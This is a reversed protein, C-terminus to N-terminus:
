AWCDTEDENWGDNWETGSLLDKKKMWLFFYRQSNWGTNQQLRQHQHIKKTAQSILILSMRFWAVSVCCCLRLYSFFFVFYTFITSSSSTHVAHPQIFFINIEEQLHLEFGTKLLRCMHSSQFEHAFSQQVRLFIGM